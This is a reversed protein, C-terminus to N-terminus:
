SGEPYGEATFVQINQSDTTDMDTITFVGGTSSSSDQTQEIGDIYLQISSDFGTGTVTVKHTFSSEDFTVQIDTLESAPTGFTFMIDDDNPTAAEESTKLFVVVLEDQSIQDTLLDTRCTIETPSTTIVYCYHGGIMVPNDLPNDSFNEGTITVLAGGYKSGSLPSVNTVTGHVDLILLDSDIRGHQVSSLQLQYQGSWAGPFKITVTRATDDVSMVFLTREYTTDTIGFLVATFDEAVLADPYSSALTIVLESKLVPSVSTPSMQITEEAQALLNVGLSSDDVGNMAITITQSSAAGSTFRRNFCTITTMDVSQVDCITGDAYTVSIVSPDYGFSDGTITMLDGGLYNVDTNPSITNAVIPIVISDASLIENPLLGYDTLIQVIWDGSVRTDSLQCDIQTDTHTTVSCTM